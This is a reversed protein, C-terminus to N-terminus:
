ATDKAVLDITKREDGKTRYGIEWALTWGHQVEADVEVDTVTGDDVRPQIAARCYEQAQVPVTNGLKRITWVKNGATPNVASSGFQLALAHAIDSHQDEDMVLDGDEVVFDQAQADILFSQYRTTM